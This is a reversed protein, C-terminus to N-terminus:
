YGATAGVPAPAPGGWAIFAPIRLEPTGYTLAAGDPRVVSGSAAVLVAHGAAVDWDRTPGLRPYLDAVGEALRCFKLSSGCAICRTHPLSAVYARTSADLHSRSVMVILEDDPRPRTHIPRPTSAHQASFELREAGRGVIGRWILGLSPATVIGLIPTGDSVLGINVTYEDRGAIFDSTGDLPDVLFYRGSQVAITNQEAQEESIVPLRPQLRALGERIVADAAEDANTVPSGDAKLRVGGSGRARLITTAAVISIATLEAMLDAGAAIDFTPVAVDKINGPRNGSHPNGSAVRNGFRVRQSV